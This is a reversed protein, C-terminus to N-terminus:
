YQSHWKSFFISKDATSSIVVGTKGFVVANTFRKIYSKAAEVNFVTEAM